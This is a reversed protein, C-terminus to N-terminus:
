SGCLCGPHNRITPRQHPGLPGHKSIHRSLFHWWLEADYASRKRVPGYGSQFESGSFNATTILVRYEAGEGSNYSIRIAVSDLINDTPVTFTQGYYPGSADGLGVAAAVGGGSQTLSGITTSM